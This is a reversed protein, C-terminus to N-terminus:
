AWVLSGSDFDTNKVLEWTNQVKLLEKFRGQGKNNTKCSRSQKAPELGIRHYFIEDEPNKYYKSM